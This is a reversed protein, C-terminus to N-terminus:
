RPLPELPRDLVLLLLAEVAALPELRPAVVPTEETAPLELSAAELPGEELLPDLVPPVGAVEETLPLELPPLPVM